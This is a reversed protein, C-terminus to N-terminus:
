LKYGMYQPTWFRWQEHASPTRTGNQLSPIWTKWTIEKRYIVRQFALTFFPYTVHGKKALCTCNISGSKTLHSKWLQYWQYWKSLEYTLLSSFILHRKQEERFLDVITVLLCTLSSVNLVVKKHRQSFFLFLDILIVVGHIRSAKIRLNKKMWSVRGGHSGVVDVKM